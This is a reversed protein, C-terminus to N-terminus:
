GGFEICKRLRPVLKRIRERIGDVRDEDNSLRNGGLFENQKTFIYSNSAALDLRDRIDYVGNVPKEYGLYSALRDSGKYVSILWFQTTYRYGVDPPNAPDVAPYNEVALGHFVIDSLRTRREVSLGSWANSLQEKRASCAPDVPSTQSSHRVASSAIMLLLISGAGMAGCIVFPHCTPREAVNQYFMNRRKSAM